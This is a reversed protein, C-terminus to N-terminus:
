YRKGFSPCNCNKRDSYALWYKIGASLTVTQFALQNVSFSLRFRPNLYYCYELEGSMWENRLYWTSKLMWEDPREPVFNQAFLVPGIGMGFAHKRKYLRFKFMFQSTLYVQGSQPIHIAQIFKIGTTRSGLYQEFGIQGGPIFEVRNQGEYLSGLRLMPGSAKILYAGQAKASQLSGLLGLVLLTFVLFRVTKIASFLTESVSNLNGNDKNRKYDLTQM